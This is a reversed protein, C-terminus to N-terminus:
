RQGSGFTKKFNICMEDLEIVDTKIPTKIKEDKRIQCAAKRVWNIVSVHSVKLLREIRRFGIGELYYRIAEQKVEDPYGNKTGTYNCGCNKCKYRQKGRNFGNKVKETRGCKPCRKEKEMSWMKSYRDVKQLAM